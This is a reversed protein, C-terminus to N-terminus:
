KGALVFNFNCTDGEPVCYIDQLASMLGPLHSEVCGFRFVREASNPRREGSLFHLCCVSVAPHVQKDDSVEYFDCLCVRALDFERLTKNACNENLDECSSSAELLLYAVDRESKGNRSQVYASKM